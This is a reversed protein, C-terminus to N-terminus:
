YAPIDQITEVHSSTIKKATVRASYCKHPRDSYAQGMTVYGLTTEMMVLGHTIDVHSPRLVQAMETTGLIMDIRGPEDWELDAMQLLDLREPGLECYVPRTPINGGLTETVFATVEMSFVSEFHPTLMVVIEEKM